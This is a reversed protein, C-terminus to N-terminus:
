DIWVNDHNKLCFTLKATQCLQQMDTPLLSTFIMPEKTVPHILQMFWCHLAQRAIHNLSGGYFDDGALPHGLFSMHVRIQHTRGTELKFEVLSYSFSNSLVHYHTIAQEGLPHVEREIRHGEKRRIPQSITGEGEWLGECIAVYKKQIQQSLAAAAYANKALVVIGTTDKDLRYLPRFALHLNHALYYAAVANALSDCDHGPTPYMPMDALKDIVLIDDDEYLITLPISVPTTKKDDDPIYITVIDGTTLPEIVKAHLGNRTIGLPVRKLKVMLRASLGCYGRLFSKISNGDYEQPVKFQLKRM